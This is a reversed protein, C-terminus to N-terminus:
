SRRWNLANVASADATSPRARFRVPDHVDRRQQGTSTRRWAYCGGDGLQRQALGADELQRLARAAQARPAGALQALRPTTIPGTATALIAEIRARVTLPKPLPM